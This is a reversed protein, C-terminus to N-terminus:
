RSRSAAAPAARRPIPPSTSTGVRSSAICTASAVCLYARPLPMLTTESYPPADIDCCIRTSARPTSM